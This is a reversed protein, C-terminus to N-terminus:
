MDYYDYGKKSYVKWKDIDPEVHLAPRTSSSYDGEYEWKDRAYVLDGTVDHEHLAYQAIAIGLTYCLGVTGEGEGTNDMWMSYLKEPLYLGDNLRRGEYSLLLDRLRSFLEENSGMLAYDGPTEIVIATNGDIKKNFDKICKIFLKVAAEMKEEDTLPRKIEEHGKVYYGNSPPDLLELAKQMGKEVCIDAFKKRLDESIETEHEKIFKTAHSFEKSGGSEKLLDIIRKVSGNIDQLIFPLCEKDIYKLCQYTFLVIYTDLDLEKRLGSRLYHDILHGDLEKKQKLYNIPVVYNITDNLLLDNAFITKLTSPLVITIREESDDGNRHLQNKLLIDFAHYDIETVGEPVKLTTFPKTVKKLCKGEIILNQSNPVGIFNRFVDMGGFKEALKEPITIDFNGDPNNTLFANEGIFEVSDPITIGRLQKCNLFAYEGIYKLSDPLVVTTLTNNFASNVYHTSGIAILSKPFVITKYGELRHIVDGAVFQIGEPIVFTDNDKSKKADSNNYYNLMIPGYILCEDNRDFFEDNCLGFNQGISKLSDFRDFGTLKTCEFISQWGIVEINKSHGRFEIEQIFGLSRSKDFTKNSNRNMRYLYDYKPDIFSSIYVNGFLANDGIIRLSEPFSIKEIPKKREALRSDFCEDNVYEIGNPVYIDTNNGNYDVLLNDMILFGDKYLHKCKRFAKHNIWFGYGRTGFHSDRPLQVGKILSYFTKDKEKISVINNIEEPILLYEGDFDVSIVTTSPLEMRSKTVQVEIDVTRM